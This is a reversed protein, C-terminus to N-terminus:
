LHNPAFNQFLVAQPQIKTMIIPKGKQAQAVVLATKECVKRVPALVKRSVQEGSAWL